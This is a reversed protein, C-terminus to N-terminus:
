GEVMNEGSSVFLSDGGTATLWPSAEDKPSVCINDLPWKIEIAPDDWRISREDAPSYPATCKYSFVTGDALAQFGHAFGEPIWMQRGNEASLEVGVWRMFTPSDVRLDVAVDYVAGNLVSVLKGQPNPNQFHLGRLVSRKSVSVNDQVFPGPIGAEAYREANWTELFRGREDEFVRPELILVGELKTEIVNM